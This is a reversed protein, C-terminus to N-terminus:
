STKKLESESLKSADGNVITFVKIQSESAPIQDLQRVLATLLEMSEAPASILLANARPDATIKVDSLIGSKFRQEGQADITMFRLVASRTAQAQASQGGQQQAQPQQQPQGQGGQPAQQPQQQPQQQGQGGRRQVSTASQANIADQLIPALDEALSNRLPFVRLENVAASTEVDISKLLVALEELDRPSGQAILTNGRVDATVQVRGALGGLRSAFFEQVTTQASTASAHQLPFVRFQGVPTVPQDLKQILDIVSQVSEARGVLLVANPKVLSTISVSGQRAALSQDYLTRVFSAAQDAGINKLPYIEVQPVTEASLREIDQIIQTVRQVDRPHGRVVVIDLGELFEIQV